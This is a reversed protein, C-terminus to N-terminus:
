GHSKRTTEVAEFTARWIALDWGGAWTVATRRDGGGDWGTLGHLSLTWQPHQLGHTVSTAEDAEDM